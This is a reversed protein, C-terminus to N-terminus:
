LVLVFGIRWGGLLDALAEILSNVLGDLSSVIGGNVLLLLSGNHVFVDLRVLMLPNISFDIVLDVLVVVMGGDLWNFVLIYQGGLVDVLLIFELLLDVMAVVLSLHLGLFFSGLDLVLLVNLVSSM